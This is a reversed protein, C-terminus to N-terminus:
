TILNWNTAILLTISIFVIGISQLTKATREKLKQAEYVSKIQEKSM